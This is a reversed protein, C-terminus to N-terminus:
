QSPLLNPKESLLPTSGATNASSSLKDPPVGLIPVVERAVDNWMPVATSYSSKSKQPEELRVLIIVEPEHAPVWGVFSSIVRSSYYGVTTKKAVQATGTKGAITYYKQVDDLRWGWAQDALANKLLESTQYATEESIPEALVKTEFPKSQDVDVFSSVIHPQVRKGGNAVTNIATILQVPTVSIIGQGFAATALDLENWTGKAKLPFVNNAEGEMGPKSEYGLGFGAFYDYMNEAGVERAIYYAGINDSHKLVAEINQNKAGKRTSTCIQKDEIVVICGPHDEVKSDITIAQSDLGAAVTLVKIVSGPEYLNSVALNSYVLSSNEEYAKWPTYTPDEKDLPLNFALEESPTNTFTELFPYEEPDLTSLCQDRLAYRPLNCDVIEGMWYTNPNFTPYNALGLIEGTSPRMVVVTGSKASQESVYQKAVKEAVRQVSRDITLQLTIGPQSISTQLSEDVIVRGSQDKTGIYVGYKGTLEGNYYGEVGYKGSENGQSDSGVYGLVHAALQGEPYIRKSEEELRVAFLKPNELEILDCPKDSNLECDATLIELVESPEVKRKLAVYHKGSSLASSIDARSVGTIESLRLSFNNIDRVYRPMIYVGYVKQDYALISGDSALIEGRDPSETALLQHRLKAESAWRSHEFIQWRALQMSLMVAVIIMGIKLVGFYSM